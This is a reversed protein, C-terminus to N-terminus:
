SSNLTPGGLRSRPMIELGLTREWASMSKRSQCKRRTSQAPVSVSCALALGPAIPVPGTLAGSLEADMM